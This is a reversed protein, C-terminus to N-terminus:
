GRGKGKGEDRVVLTRPLEYATSPLRKTLSASM